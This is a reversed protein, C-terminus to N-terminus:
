GGEGACRRRLTTGHGAVVERLGYPRVGHGGVGCRCIGMMRLSALARQRKEGQPSPRLVRRSASDGAAGKAMFWRGERGERVLWPTLVGPKQTYLSVQRRSAKVVWGTRGGWGTLM